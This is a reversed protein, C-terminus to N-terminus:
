FSCPLAVLCDVPLNWWLCCMPLALWQILSRMVACMSYTRLSYLLVHSGQLANM